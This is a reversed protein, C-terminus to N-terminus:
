VSGCARRRTESFRYAGDNPSGTGAVVDAKFEQEAMRAIAADHSVGPLPECAVYEVKGYTGDEIAAKLPYSYVLKGPVIRKDRRFPTATFFAKRASPFADLLSAYSVAPAHHAEDVMVLDFLDPPPVAIGGISPSASM